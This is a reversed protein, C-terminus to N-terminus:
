DELDLETIQVKVYKCKGLVKAVRKLTEHLYIRDQADEIIFLKANDIRKTWHYVYDNSLYQKDDASKIMYGDTYNVM